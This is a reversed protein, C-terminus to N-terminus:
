QAGQLEWEAKAGRCYQPRLKVARGGAHVTVTVFRCTGQNTISTGEPVIDASVEAHDPSAPRVWHTTEGDDKTNLVVGVTSNLAAIDNKDLQAMPTGELFDGYAPWAPPSALALLLAGLAALHIGRGTHGTSHHNQM